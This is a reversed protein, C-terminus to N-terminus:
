ELIDNLQSVADAEDTAKIVYCPCGLRRLNDIEAQQADSLRGGKRRKLELFIVRGGSTIIEIDPRGPRAGQRKLSVQQRVDRRGGELNVYYTLQGLSRLTELYTVIARSIDKELAQVTM